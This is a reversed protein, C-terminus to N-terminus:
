ANLGESPNVAKTETGLRPNPEATDKSELDLALSVLTNHNQEVPGDTKKEINFHGLNGSYGCPLPEPYSVM